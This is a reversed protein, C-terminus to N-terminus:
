QGEVRGKNLSVLLLTELAPPDGLNFILETFSTSQLPVTPSHCHILCLV